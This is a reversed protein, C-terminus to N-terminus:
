TTTRPNESFVIANRAVGMEVLFPVTGYELGGGTCFMKLNTGKDRYAKWLLAAHRVRDSGQFMEPAHCEEHAGMGGGLLVIADVPQLDDIEGCAKGEHVFERELPAGILRTTLGCGMIWAQVLSVAIVMLGLRRCWRVRERRMAIRRLAWGIALGLYLMGFPSLAWGVIKNVYYM